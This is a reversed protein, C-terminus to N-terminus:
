IFDVWGLVMLSPSIRHTYYFAELNLTTICEPLTQPMARKKNTHIADRFHASHSYLLIADGVDDDGDNPLVRSIVTEMERIQGLVSNTM